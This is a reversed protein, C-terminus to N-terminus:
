VEQMVKKRARTRMRNGMLETGPEGSIDVFLMRFFLCTRKDKQKVFVLVYIPYNIRFVPLVITSYLRDM